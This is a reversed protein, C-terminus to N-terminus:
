LRTALGKKLPLRRSGPVVQTAEDCIGKDGSLFITPVRLFAAAYAYILFESAYLDNIKINTYKGTMTHALPSTGAGARSHYGVFAVGQFSDDLGQVMMLPHPAWGRILNVEKPLKAAIINRGTWHADKGL